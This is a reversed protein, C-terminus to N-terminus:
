FVKNIILQQLEKLKEIRERLQVELAEILSLEEALETQEEKSLFPIKLNMIEKQSINKMAGGTGTAFSEIQRRVSFSKLMEFLFIANVKEKDYILRLTKDSLMLNPYDEKVLCVRGVLETTNARTILLDGSSVRHKTIFEEQNILIKNEKEDFGVPGVASVKVVGVEHEKVPINRGNLSKGAEINILLEALKIKQIPSKFHKLERLLSRKTALSNLLYNNADIAEEVSWVAENIQKQVEIPPLKIELAELDRWKVRKSMTGAANANAFVWFPKSNTLLSLFSPVILEENERLVYADGSCVGNFNVLSSRKLYANRRALLIDGAEFKKAASTLSATSGYNKIKIDGSVFHELGVFRDYESTSPNEVRTSIETALSSLSYSIWKEKNFFLEDIIM